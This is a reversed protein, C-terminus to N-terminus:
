ATTNGVLQNISTLPYTYKPCVKNLDIYNTCMRWKGNLKSFMNDVDL